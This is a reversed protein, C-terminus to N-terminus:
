TLADRVDYGPPLGPEHNGEGWALYHVEAPPEEASAMMQAVRKMGAWGAPDMVSGTRPHSIPYDNDYLLVVRKRSFLPLWSESFVNCGPTAIVGADALLSVERNSTQELGGAEGKAAGLVEKLAMGDWPGECVYVTSASKDISGFYGHYLDPTAYLRAPRGAYRYLTAVDGKANCGPLIWAGDLASKRVGWQRLTAAFLLRREARLEEYGEMPSVEWLKRVFTLSNGSAGCVKCHFLGNTVNVYFKLKDCFLCVGLAETSTGRYSLELGHFVYPKLAKPVDTIGPM